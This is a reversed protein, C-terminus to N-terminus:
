AISISIDEGAPDTIPLTGIAHNKGAATMAMAIVIRVIVIGAIIARANTAAAGTSIKKAGGPVAAPRSGLRCTTACRRM